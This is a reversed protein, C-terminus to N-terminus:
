GIKTWVPSPRLASCVTVDVTVQRRLVLGRTWIVISGAVAWM